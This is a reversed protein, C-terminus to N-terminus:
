KKKAGGTKEQLKKPGVQKKKYNKKAGGTLVVNQGAADLTPM